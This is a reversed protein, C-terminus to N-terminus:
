KTCLKTLNKKNIPLYLINWDIGFREFNHFKITRIKKDALIILSDPLIGKTPVFFSYEVKTIIGKSLMIEILVVTKKSSYEGLMMDLQKESLLSMTKQFEAIVATAGEIAYESNTYSRMNGEVIEDIKSYITTDLENKYLHVTSYGERVSWVVSDALHNNVRAQCSVSDNNDDCTKKIKNTQGCCGHIPSLLFLFIITNIVRFRKM